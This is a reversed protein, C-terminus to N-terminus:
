CREISAGFRPASASRPQRLGDRGGPASPSGRAWRTWPSSGRRAAEESNVYGASAAAWVDIRRMVLSRVGGQLHLAAGGIRHVSAGMVSLAPRQVTLATPDTDDVRATVGRGVVAAGAPAAPLVIAGPRPGADDAWPAAIGAALLRGRPAAGGGMLAQQAGTVSAWPGWEAPLPLAAGAGTRGVAEVIVDGVTTTGDAGGLLRAGVADGGASTSVSEVRGVSVDLGQVGLALVGAASGSAGAGTVGSVMFGRLRLLGGCVVLAGTAGLSGLIGTGQIEAVAYLWGPAAPGTGVGEGACVIRVGVPRLGAVNAVSVSVADVHQTAEVVVGAADLGDLLGPTAPAPASTATQTIGKVTVGSLRVAPAVVELGVARAGSLNGIQVDSAAASAAAAVAVGIAQAPPTAGAAGTVVIATLEVDVGQVDIAIPATAGTVSLDAATVTTGGARFGGGTVSVGAARITGGRLTLGAGAAGSVGLQEVRVDAGLVTLDGGTLQLLTGGSGAGAGVIRLARGAAGLQLPGTIAFTGSPLTWEEPAQPAPQAAFAQQKARLDADLPAQLVRVVVGTSAPAASASTGSVAPGALTM